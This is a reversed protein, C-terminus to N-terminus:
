YVFILKQELVGSSKMIFNRTQNGQKFEDNNKALSVPDSGRLFYELPRKFRGDKQLSGDKGLLLVREHNTM